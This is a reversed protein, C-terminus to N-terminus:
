LEPDLPDVPEPVLEPATQAPEPKPVVEPPSSTPCCNLVSSGSNEDIGGMVLVPV